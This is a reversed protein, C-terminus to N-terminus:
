EEENLAEKLMDKISGIKDDVMTQMEKKFAEMEGKADYEPEEDTEIDLDSDDGMELSEDGDIPVEQPIMQQQLFTAIGLSAKAEEPTMDPQTTQPEM